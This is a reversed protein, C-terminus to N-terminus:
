QKVQSHIPTGGLARVDQETGRWPTRWWGARSSYAHDDTDHVFAVRNPHAIWQTFPQEANRSFPSDVM